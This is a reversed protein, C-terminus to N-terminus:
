ISGRVKIQYQVKSLNEYVIPSRQIKGYTTMFQEDGIGGVWLMSQGNISDLYRQISPAIKKDIVVPYTSNKIIPRNVYTEEGFEDFKTTSYDIRDSTAGKLM